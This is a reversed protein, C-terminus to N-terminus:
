SLPIKIKFHINRGQEAYFYRMRNLYDRYNQNLLNDASIVFTMKNRILKPKFQIEVGLLSYTPPPPMYDSSDTYRFQRLVWKESVSFQWEKIKRSLQLRFSYPPMQNLYRKNSLDSGNMLQVKLEAKYHRALTKNLNLNWGNLRANTSTYVFVPFAGRITLQPEKGPILNIFHHIYKNYIETEIGWNKGSFAYELSQHFSREPILSADGKEISALGQHLGNSYLENPAPPRYSSGHILAFNGIKLNRSVRLSYSAGLYEKSDIEQKNGQWIFARLYQRDLRGGTEIRYKGVGSETQFYIAESNRYFGPIFYRGTYANSQYLGYAGLNVNTGHFSTRTWNVDAMLTQIYYDFDPGNFSSASRKIDFEQRHNYQWSLNSELSNLSNIQQKRNLRILQHNVNQYPRNMAYSFGSQILPRESAIARNLDSLNGAQAGTYIGTQNRFQSYFIETSSKRTKKGLAGSFNFSQTGTNSIFDSSTRFNGTKLLTGQVRWYIPLKGINASGLIASISGGRGNSQFAENIEGNLKGATQRFLDPSQVMVVGGIGDSAYRLAKPGKLLKIETALYPDIEPAHEMGWNQGEQRIGNNLVIVRSSHLGNVIPKSTSFGTKLLSVGTIQEMLNGINLTSASILRDKQTASLGSNGKAEISIGKILHDTHKIKIRLFTDAQLYFTLHLHECNLHSIHLEVPGRCINPIVFRGSDDTEVSSKKATYEIRSLDLRFGSSSDEVVGRITHNCNKQAESGTCILLTLSVLLIRM